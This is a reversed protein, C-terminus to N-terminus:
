GTIYKAAILLLLARDAKAEDFNEKLLQIIRSNKLKVAAVQLIQFSSSEVSEINQMYFLISLDRLITSRGQLQIASFADDVMAIMGNCNKFSTRANLLRFIEDIRSIQKEVDERTEALAKKLDQFYAEEQIEPLREVLHKKACYVYNLNDLFFMKLKETGLIEFHPSSGYEVIM